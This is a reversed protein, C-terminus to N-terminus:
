FLINLDVVENEGGVIIFPVSVDSSIEVLTKTFSFQKKQTGTRIIEFKEYINNEISGDRIIM